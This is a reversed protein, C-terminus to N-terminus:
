PVVTEAAPRLREVHVTPKLAPGLWGAIVFLDRLEAAGLRGPVGRLAIVGLVSGDVEDLVPAAADSDQATVDAVESALVPRRLEAAAKVTRDFWLDIQSSAPLERGHRALVRHRDSGHVVGSTAGCRLACLELAARAAESESGRDLRRALERWLTLSLDIRDHRARLKGLADRQAALVQEADALSAEADALRRALRATRGEHALAIWAVGIAAGLAFISSTGTATTALGAMSGVLLLGALALAAGTLGLGFLFGRTGYRAAPVLIAIWAPHFGVGTLWPDGPSVLAVGGTTLVAGAAAEFVITRSSTSM